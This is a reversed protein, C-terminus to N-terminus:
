RRGACASTLHIWCLVVFCLVVALVNADFDMAYHTLMEAASVRVASADVHERAISPLEYGRLAARLLARKVVSSSKADSLAEAMTSAQLATALRHLATLEEASIGTVWQLVDDDDDSCSAFCLVFCVSFAFVFAGRPQM